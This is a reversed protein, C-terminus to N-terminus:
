ANNVGIVIDKLQNFHREYLHLSMAHWHVRSPKVRLVEAIQHLMFIQWYLDAGILGFRLDNSRMTVLAHLKSNIIRYGVALTCVHDNGGIYHMMPNTYYAIARRSNPNKKLENIVNEFQYGNQASFMLFGYNSKVKNHPDCCSLWIKAKQGITSIDLSQSFYWELEETVYERNTVFKDKINIYGDQLSEAYFTVSKNLLEVTGNVINGSCLESYLSPIIENYIILDNREM